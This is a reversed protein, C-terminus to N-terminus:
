AAASSCEGVVNAFHALVEAMQALAHRAAAPSFAQSISCTFKMVSYYAHLMQNEVGADDSGSRQELLRALVYRDRDLSDKLAPLDEWTAVRVSSQAAAFALQHLEAISAAYDRSTRASLILLCSYRFWYAFMALSGFTIVITAISEIVIEIEAHLRIAV